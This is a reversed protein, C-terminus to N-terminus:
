SRKQKLLFELVLKLQPKTQAGAAVGGSTGPRRQGTIQTFHLLQARPIVAGEPVVGGAWWWLRPPVSVAAQKGPVVSRPGNAGAVLVSALGGRYCVKTKIIAWRKM